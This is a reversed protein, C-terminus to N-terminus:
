RHVRLAEKEEQSFLLKDGNARLAPLNIPRDQLFALALENVLRGVPVKLADAAEKIKKYTTGRISVQPKKPPKNSSARKKKKKAKKAERRKKPAAPKDAPETPKDPM